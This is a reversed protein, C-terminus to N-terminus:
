VPLIEDVLNVHSIGSIRFILEILCFVVHVNAPSYETACLVIIPKDTADHLIVHIPSSITYTVLM